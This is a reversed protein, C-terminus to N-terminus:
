PVSHPDTLLCVPQVLHGGCVGPQPTPFQIPKGPGEEGTAQDRSPGPELGPIPPEPNEAQASTSPAPLVKTSFTMEVTTAQCLLFWHHNKEARGCRVRARPQGGSLLWPLFYTPRQPSCSRVLM